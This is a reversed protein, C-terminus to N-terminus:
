PRGWIGRTEQIQYIYKSKIRLTKVEMEKLGDGIQWMNAVKVVRDRIIKRSLIYMELWVMERLVKIMGKLDM